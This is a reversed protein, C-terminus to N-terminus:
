KQKGTVINRIPFDKEGILAGSKEKKGEAEESIVVTLTINIGGLQSPLIEYQAESVQQLKNVKNTYQDLLLNRVTTHPFVPFARKVEQELNKQAISDTLKNKFDYIVTTIREGEYFASSVQALVNQVTLLFLFLFVLKNIKM